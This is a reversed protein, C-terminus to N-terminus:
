GATETNYASAAVIKVAAGPHEEDGLLGQYAVQVEDGAAVPADGAIAQAGM